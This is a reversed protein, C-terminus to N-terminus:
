QASARPIGAAQAERTCCLVCDIQLIEQRPRVWILAEPFLLCVHMLAATHLSPLDISVDSQSSHRRSAM